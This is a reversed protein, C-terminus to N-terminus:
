ESHIKGIGSSNVSVESPNGYYKVSGIGSANGIFKESAYVEVNGVGGSEVITNKSILNKANYNGVGAFDVKHYDARGQLWFSGVGEIEAIFRDAELDINVQGAGEFEIKLDETKIVNEAELNVAGTIIIKELETVTIYVKISKSKSFIKDDLDIILRNNKVNVELDDHVKESARIELNQEDSQVLEVNFPGRLEIQNFYSVGYDKTIQEDKNDVGTFSYVIYALGLIFALNLLTKM